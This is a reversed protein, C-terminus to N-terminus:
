VYIYIYIYIYIHIYIHIYIYIYIYERLHMNQHIRWVLIGFYWFIVYRLYTLKERRNMLSLPLPLLALGAGNKLRYAQDKADDKGNTPNENESVEDLKDNCLKLADNKLADEFVEKNREFVERVNETGYSQTHGENHIVLHHSANAATLESLGDLIKSIRNELKRKPHDIKVPM